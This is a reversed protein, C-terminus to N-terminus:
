VITLGIFGRSDRSRKAQYGLSVLRKGLGASSLPHKIGESDAWAQYSDYLTATQTYAGAKENLRDAIWDGLGHQDKRYGETSCRICAPVRLGDLGRRRDGMYDRLGHLAWSLIGEGEVRLAM